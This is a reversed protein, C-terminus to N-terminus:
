CLRLPIAYDGRKAADGDCTVTHERLIRETGPVVDMNVYVRDSTLATIFAHRDSDYFEVNPDAVGNDSARQRMAAVLKELTSLKM